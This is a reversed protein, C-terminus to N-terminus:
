KENFYELLRFSNEVYYLVATKLGEDKVIFDSHHWTSANKEGNRGIFAFIGTKLMTEIMKIGWKTLQAKIFKTTEFEENSLEPNQISIFLIDSQQYNMLFHNNIGTM